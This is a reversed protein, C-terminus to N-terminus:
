FVHERDRLFRYTAIKVVDNFVFWSLAYAWMWMAYEWGIPTIFIGYVAILTGLIATSFISNFLLWSPYPKKWFWNDTRTNYITGHGAVVLKVFFLSQIVEDSIKMQLLIYFLLFSSIVGAIGLVSSITLIEPMNWRVPNPDVKTNDSAIALIPIDNLLALVIIM